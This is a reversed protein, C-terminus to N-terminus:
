RYRVKGTGKTTKKHEAQFSGSTGIYAHDFHMFRLIKILTFVFDHKTRLRMMAHLTHTHSLHASAVATYTHTQACAYVTCGLSFCCRVFSRPSLRSSSSGDRTQWRAVRAAGSVSCRVAAVCSSLRSDLGLRWRAPYGVACLAFSMGGSTPRRVRGSRGHTLSLTSGASRPRGWASCM